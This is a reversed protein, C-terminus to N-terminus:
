ANTISCVRRRISDAIESAPAQDARRWRTDTQVHNKKETDVFVLRKAISVKMECSYMVQLIESQIVYDEFRVPTELVVLVKFGNFKESYVTETILNSDDMYAKLSTTSIEHWKSPVQAFAVTAIFLSLILLKKM